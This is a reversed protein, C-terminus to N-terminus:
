AEGVSTNTGLVKILSLDKNRIDFRITAIAKGSSNYRVSFMKLYELANYNDSAPNGKDLAIKVANFIKNFQPMFANRDYIKGSDDISGEPIYDISEYRIDFSILESMDTIIELELRKIEKNVEQYVNSMTIRDTNEQPVIYATANSPKQPPNQAM